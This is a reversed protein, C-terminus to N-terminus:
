RSPAQVRRTQLRKIKRHVKDGHKFGRTEGLIVEVQRRIIRKQTDTFIGARGFKEAIWSLGKALQDREKQLAICTDWHLQGPADAGAEKIEAVYDILTLKRAV